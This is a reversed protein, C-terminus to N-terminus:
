DAKTVKVPAASPKQLLYDGGMIAKYVGYLGRLPWISWFVAMLWATRSARIAAEDADVDVRVKDYVSPLYTAHYKSRLADYSKRDYSAWFEEETYYAHAYLWKKGGLEQVKKELERNKRVVERRDFSIPGWIGFNLLNPSDPDAFESHLGYGSDPSDRRVRLPCLWLPYIKFYEDLWNIFEEAKDYPVGVDQLVYFDSLGSQHM